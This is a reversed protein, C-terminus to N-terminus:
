FTGVTATTQSVPNFLEYRDFIFSPIKWDASCLCEMTTVMMTFLHPIGLLLVEIQYNFCGVADV